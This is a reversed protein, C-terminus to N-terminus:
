RRAVLELTQSLPLARSPHCPVCTLRAINERVFSEFTAGVPTHHYVILFKPIAERYLISILFPAIYHGRILPTNSLIYKNHQQLIVIVLPTVFSFSFHSSIFTNHSPRSEGATNNHHPAKVQKNKPKLFNTPAYGVPLQSLGWSRDWRVGQM